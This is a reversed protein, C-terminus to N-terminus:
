STASLRLLEIRHNANPNRQSPGAVLLARDATIGLSTLTERAFNSWDEPDDALQIAHVGYSFSLAQCVSADETPVIIWVGPKSRSILRATTGSKTPVIV